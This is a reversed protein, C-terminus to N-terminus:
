LLSRQSTRFIQPPEDHTVRRYWNALFEAVKSFDKEAILLYSPVDFVRKIEAYISSFARNQKAKDPELKAALVAVMKQIQSAQATNIFDTGLFRVELGAVRAVVDDIKEQQGQIIERLRTAEDMLRSYEQEVPPRNADMEALMDEPFIASRFAAWAVEAFERKFAIVKDRHEPKVRDTDVTGLWYPLRRLQLCSLQRSGGWGETGKPSLLASAEDLVEDRKIRQLQGSPDLGLTECMKRVPLYPQLDDTIYLEFVDGYFEFPFHNIIEFPM